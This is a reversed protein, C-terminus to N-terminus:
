QAPAPPAQQVDRPRDVANDWDPGARRKGSRARAVRAVQGRHFVPTIPVSRERATAAFRDVRERVQQQVVHAVAQGVAPGIRPSAAALPARRRQPADAQGCATLPVCGVEQVVAARAVSSLPSGTARRRPARELRTMAGARLLWREAITANRSLKYRSREVSRQGPPYASRNSQRAFTVLEQPHPHTSQWTRQSFRWTPVGQMGTVPVDAVM